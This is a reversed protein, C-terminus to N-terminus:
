SDGEELMLQVYGKEVVDEKEIGLDFLVKKIEEQAGQIQGESEVNKEVEVFVGLDRINDINIEMDQYEFSQRVKDILCVYVYGNKTLLRELKEPDKIETDFDQWSGDNYGVPSKAKFTLLASKEEYNKRIRLIMNRHEDQEHKLYIDVQRKNSFNEEVGHLSSLKEELLSLDKIKARTEVEM